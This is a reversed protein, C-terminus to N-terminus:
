GREAPSVAHALRYYNLAVTGRLALKGFNLTENEPLCTGLATRMADFRSAEEASTPATLLLARAAAPDNRVVCEGFRSLYANAKALEYGRLEDQYARESLAKGKASLRSPPDGPERHDLRPVADLVPAPQGAFERAVLSDALAYRYQDGQFRVKVTRGPQAPLCSGDILRGYKKLLVGNDVDALIAESARAQQRKVVCAGYRHLIQRTETVSVDSGTQQAAAAAHGAFLAMAVVCTTLKFM